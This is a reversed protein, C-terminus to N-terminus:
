MQAIDDAIDKVPKNLTPDAIAEMEQQVIRLIRAVFEAHWLQRETASEPDPTYAELAARDLVGQHQLLRELTDLRERMVAVEGALAMTINLVREVAPDELFYPRGGKAKNGAMKIYDIPTMFDLHHTIFRDAPASSHHTQQRM